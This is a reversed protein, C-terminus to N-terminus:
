KLWRTSSSLYVTLHKGASSSRLVLVFSERVNDDTVRDPLTGNGLGFISTASIAAPSCLNAEFDVLFVVFVVIM